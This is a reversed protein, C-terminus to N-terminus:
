AMPPARLPPILFDPAPRSRDTRAAPNCASACFVALTDASDDRWGDPLDRDGDVAADNEHNSGPVRFSENHSAVVLHNLPGIFGQGVQVASGQQHTASSLFVLLLALLPFVVLPMRFRRHDRQLSDNDM